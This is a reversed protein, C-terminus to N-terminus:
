ESITQVEELTALRLIRGSEIKINRSDPFKEQNMTKSMLPHVPIPVNCSQNEWNGEEM